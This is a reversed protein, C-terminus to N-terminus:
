CLLPPNGHCSFGDFIPGAFDDTKGFPRAIFFPEAIKVSAFQAIIITRGVFGTFEAAAHHPFAVDKHGQQSLLIYTLKLFPPFYQHNPSCFGFAACGAGVPTTVTLDINVPRCFSGTGIGVAAAIDAGFGIGIGCVTGGTVLVLFPRSYLLVTFFEWLLM